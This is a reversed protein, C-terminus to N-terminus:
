FEGLRDTEAAISGFQAGNLSGVFEVSIGQQGFLMAIQAEREQETLEAADNAAVLSASMGSPSAEDGDRMVLWEMEKPLLGEIAGDNELMDPTSIDKMASKAIGCAEAYFGLCCMRGTASHLLASYTHTGKVLAGNLWKRRDIVLNTVM